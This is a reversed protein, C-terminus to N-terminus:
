NVITATGSRGDDARWHVVRGRKKLKLCMTKGSLWTRWRKCLRADDVWWKGSDRAAGLFFALAEAKGYMRGSKTFRVPIVAGMDTKLHVMRGAVLRRVREDPTPPKATNTVKNTQVAPPTTTNRMPTSSSPALSALQRPAVPKSRKPPRSEPAPARAPRPPLAMSKPQATQLNSPVSPARAPRPKPVDIARTRNDPSQGGRIGTSDTDRGTAFWASALQTPPMAVAAISAPKRECFRTYFLDGVAEITNAYQDNFPSWRLALDRFNIPRDFTDLWDNLVQWELVKRTREAVPNAIRMGAYILIHQIHAEVGSAIDDFAEGPTGDGVAGLGAFNNQQPAIEAPSGDWRAFSLNNTEVLMQFFAYDWRVGYAEGVVRYTDAIREFRPDLARNRLALFSKLRQPTVCAPVTNGSSTRIPPMSDTQASAPVSVCIAALGVIALALTRALTHLAVRV